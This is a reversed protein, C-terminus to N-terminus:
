GKMLLLRTTMVVCFLVWFLVSYFLFPSLKPYRDVFRGLGGIMRRALTSPCSIRCRGERARHLERVMEEVSQFRDKPDKGLGKAIFHLLYAPPVPFRPHHIFMLRSFTYTEGVVAFMVSNLSPRDWLYHRGAILEHLVVTASYIDSREDVEDVKGQAQEPSMYAPTGIVTGAQTAFATQLEGSKQAVEPLPIPAPTLADRRSKAVGWDMLVVEGYRGVMVNAPKIDRHIVGKAHAFQLARLLGFFIELRYDLTYRETYEPDGAALKELITELTEGDIHKMVFFIQGEEDVGVDHIPVINPHELRGITRIESIFRLLGDPNQTDGTLQKMAVTRGIDNDLVLNVEGMAGSGLRKLRQYRTENRPKVAISAGSSELHPLVTTNRPPTTSKAEPPMEPSAFPSTM